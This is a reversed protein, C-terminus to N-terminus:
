GYPLQLLHFDYRYTRNANEHETQDGSKYARTGSSHDHVFARKRAARM